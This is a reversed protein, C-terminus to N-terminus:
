TVVSAAPMGVTTRGSVDDPLTTRGRPTYMRDGLGSWTLRPVTWCHFTDNSRRSGPSRDTSSAYTPVAVSPPSPPYASRFTFTPTGPPPPEAAFYKATAPVVAM